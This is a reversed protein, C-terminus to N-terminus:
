PDRYSKDLASKEKVLLSNGGLNLQSSSFYPLQSNWEEPINQKM